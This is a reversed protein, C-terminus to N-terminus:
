GNKGSRTLRLALVHLRHPTQAHEPFDLPSAGLWTAAGAGRGAQYLGSRVLEGFTRRDLQSLNCCAVLLGDDALVQAAAHVLAPYDKAASFRSKRTNAFSPPDLIVADFSEKKKHFKRLWEFVDGAIFDHNDALLGNLAYNERGWELVRRSVDVNVARQAGGSLAAVGFGCTYAFCNLVTRGALAAKVWARTDRMDLFLGVSLGAAPRIHFRLGNETAIGEWPELAFPTVPSVEAAKTNAVVRAEKPRRKLYISRPKLALCADALAREEAQTFNAYTSVVACEGNFWDVTVHAIGDAHSHVVRFCDTHTTALPARRDRARLLRQRLEEVSPLQSM